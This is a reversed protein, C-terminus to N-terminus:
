KKEVKYENSFAYTFLLVLGQCTLFVPISVHTLSKDLSISLVVMLLIGAWGIFSGLMIIKNM